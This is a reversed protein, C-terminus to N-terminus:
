SEIRVHRRLHERAVDVTWGLPFIQGWVELLLINALWAPTATDFLYDIARKNLGYYEVMFGNQFYRKNIKLRQYVSSRFGYKTRHALDSPLYQEAIKRIIWKDSIFPHRWDSFRLTRHYKYRGHLNIAMKLLRHGLFPFRSEVGWAMGLHDNRHLLTRMNGIINDVCRIHWSLQTQNRVFDLVKAADGRRAELEYRFMLRRLHSAPDAEKKPWLLNGLSPLCHLLNQFFGIIRHYTRLYPEIAYTPYGMFGEDSGEGTLAVKIGDKNALESVMYFPVCSSHYIIPIEYHYTTIPTNDLIDEDTIDVSRLELRLARALHEPLPMESDRTVNAHYLKLDPYRRSAIAAILSSDVGGSVLAGVPADSVLRTEVSEQLANAVSDIVENGPLRRIEDYLYQDVFDNIHFFVHRETEPNQGFVLREGACVNRVGRFVTPEGWTAGLGLLTANLTCLDPEPHASILAKMESAFRVEGKPGISYFLPRGGYRDRVLTLNQEQQDWLAFAFMGEIKALTAEVGFSTLYELIAETDGISKLVVGREKLEDQLQRANYVDGDYTLVYRKNQSVIPQVVPSSLDQISLRAHGLGIGESTYLESGDPGRHLIQELMSQVEDKAVQSGAPRFIGIIGSM